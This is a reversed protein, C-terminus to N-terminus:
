HEINDRTYIMIQSLVRDEPVEDFMVYNNLVKLAQYGQMFPEQDIVVDIVGRLCCEVHSPIRDYCIIRVQKELGLEVLADCAGEVGAGALFLGRTEPRKKLLDLTLTRSTESEDRNELVVTIDSERGAQALRWRFGKLRDRHALYQHSGLICALQGSGPVLWEMLGGAVVGGRYQDWGVHCFRKTGEVDSTFTLVQTGGEVGRNIARRVPESDLAVLAIGRIGADVLRDISAAQEEANIEPLFVVEVDTGFDRLEDMARNIGRLEETYFPNGTSAFIVGYKLRQQRMVLARATKNPRYGAVEAVKLVKNKTELAVHPHNSLARQVTSRSVGAIEAITKTSVV